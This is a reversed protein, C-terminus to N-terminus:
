NKLKMQVITAFSLVGNINMKLESIWCYVSITYMNFDSSSYKGMFDSTTNQLFQFKSFKIKSSKYLWTSMIKNIVHHLWM